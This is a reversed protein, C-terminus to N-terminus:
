SEDVELDVNVDGVASLDKALCAWVTVHAKDAGTIASFTHAAKSKTIDASITSDDSGKKWVETSTALDAQTASIDYTTPRTTDIVGLGLDTSDPREIELWFEDDKLRAPAGNGDDWQAIEVTITVASTLDLLLEALKFRLPAFYPIVDASASMLVTLKEKGDVNAGGDRYISSDSDNTGFLYYRHHFQWYDDEAGGAQGYGDLEIVPNADTNGNFAAASGIKVRSFLLHPNDDLLDGSIATANSLDLCRAIVTGGRSQTHFAQGPTTGTTDFFGGSLSGRFEQINGAQSQISSASNSQKIAVDRGIFASGQDTGMRLQRNGHHQELLLREACAISDVAGNFGGADGTGINIGYICFRGNAPANYKVAGNSSTRGEVAGTSLNEANADDVCLVKSGDPCAYDHTANAVTHSHSSSACITDGAAYATTPVGNIVVDEISDYYASAGMTAFSGTRASAARGADATATGGSKVYYFAM